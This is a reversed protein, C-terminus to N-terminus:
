MRCPSAFMAMGIMAPHETVTFVTLPKASAGDRWAAARWFPKYLSRSGVSDVARDVFFARSGTVFRYDAGPGQPPSDVGASWAAIRVPLHERRRM